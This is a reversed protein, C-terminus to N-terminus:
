ILGFGESNHIAKMLKEKLVEKSSYDPLLLHNFCTHVSPLLQDNDGHRSIFFKMAGLGNIPAKDCGTCFFLFKKKEEDDLEEIVEWFNHITQSAETYGDQYITVERLKEFDLTKSGCVLMELDEPELTSLVDGYCCKEFGKIFSNFWKEVSRNFIFDIYLKVYEKKNQQTVEIEKGGEKLEEEVQAGWSEYQITFTLGMVENFNDKDYDLIAKLSNAVQPDYQAFDEFTVERKLLKKYLAMPFHIDLINSNYIALGIIIGILEFKLPSEFTDKKIWYLNTEEKYEFMGYEVDFLERVLLQFFEKQVGGEDVGPEDKFKVKLPKKLDKGANVLTNLSDEIIQNRRILVILYISNNLVDFINRISNHVEKRMQIQSEYKMMRSKSGADYAWPFMMYLFKGKRIDLDHTEDNEDLEMDDSIQYREKYWDIYHDPLESEWERNLIDSHFEKYSIKTKNKRLSNSHFFFNLLLFYRRVVEIEETEEEPKEFMLFTLQQQNIKVISTFEEPDIESLFQKGLDKNWFDSEEM